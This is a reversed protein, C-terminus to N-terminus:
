EGYQRCHTDRADQGAAPIVPLLPTRQLSRLFTRLSALAKPLLQLQSFAITCQPRFKPM